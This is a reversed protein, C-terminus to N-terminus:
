QKRGIQKIFARLHICAIVGDAPILGYHIPENPFGIGFIFWLWFVQGILAVRVGWDSKKTFLYQALITFISAFIEIVIM